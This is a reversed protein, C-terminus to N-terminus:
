RTVPNQHVSGTSKLADVTHNLHMSRSGKILIVDGAKMEQKLMKNLAQQDSFHYVPIAKSQIHRAEEGFAYIISINSELAQSAIQKHLKRSFTGLEKMDGIVLLKRGQFRRIFDLAYEVGDPNANYSDDILTAGNALHTVQLRHSSAQYNELGQRIEEETLGFHGGISYCMNLAQDPKIAGGYPLVTFGTRKAQNELLAYYPTNHNLFAYRPHTEWALPKQMIEAKALAINRQTKLFEIHTFGVNTVVVHSPRVIRTLYDIEHRARMAMEVILIETDFDATLVTFPAGIENNLNEQTKVVKFKQSLMGALMDKATTKGASGTIGIVHCNLKKRYSRALLRIDKDLIKSAGRAIAEPIFDHGDFHPGKIPIYIDGPTLKRTDICVRM